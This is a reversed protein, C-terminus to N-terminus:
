GDYHMDEKVAQNWVKRLASERLVGPKQLRKEVLRRTPYIGARSIETVAEKVLKSLHERRTNKRMERNTAFRKTIAKAFEPYKQRVMKRDKRLLTSVQKLSLPEATKLLDSFFGSVSGCSVSRMTKHRSCGLTKGTANFLVQPTAESIVMSKLLLPLPPLNNGHVWGALTGKAVGILRAFAANNGETKHNIAWEFFQPVSPKENGTHQSFHEILQTAMTAVTVDQNSALLETDTDGLWSGCRACYGPRTKRELLLM